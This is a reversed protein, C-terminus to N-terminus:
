EDEDEESEEESVEDTAEEEVVEDEKVEEGMNYITLSTIFGEIEVRYLPSLCLIQEGGM